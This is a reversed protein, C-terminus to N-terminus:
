ITFWGSSSSSPSSTTIWDDFGPLADDDLLVINGRFEKTGWNALALAMAMDDNVGVSEM